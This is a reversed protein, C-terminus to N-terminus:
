TEIDRHRQRHRQRHRHRQRNRQRQHPMTTLTTSTLASDYIQFLALPLSCVSVFTKTSFHRRHFFATFSIGTATQCANQGYRWNPKTAKTYPICQSFHTNIEYKIRYKNLIKNNTQTSCYLYIIFIPEAFRDVISQIGQQNANRWCLCMSHQQTFM